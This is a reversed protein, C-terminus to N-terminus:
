RQAYSQIDQMGAHPLCGLLLDLAEPALALRAYATTFFMKTCTVMRCSLFNFECAFAVYCGADAM